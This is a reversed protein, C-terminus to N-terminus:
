FGKLFSLAFSGVFADTSDGFYWSSDRNCYVLGLPEELPIQFDRSTMASGQPEFVVAPDPFCKRTEGISLELAHQTPSLELVEARSVPLPDGIKVQGM